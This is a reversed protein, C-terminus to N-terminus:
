MMHENGENSIFDGADCGSKSPCIQIAKFLGNSITPGSIENKYGLVNNVDPDMAEISFNGVSGSYEM